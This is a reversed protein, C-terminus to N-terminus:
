VRPCITHVNYIGLPLFYHLNVLNTSKTIMYCHSRIFLNHVPHKNYNTIKTTVSFSISFAQSSAMFFWAQTSIKTPRKLKTPKGREPFLEVRHRSSPSNILKISALISWSSGLVPTASLFCSKMWLMLFDTPNTFLPCHFSFFRTPSVVKRLPM